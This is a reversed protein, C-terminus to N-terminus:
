VRELMSAPVKYLTGFLSNNNSERVQVTKRNVKTVTGVVTKGAGTTFKAKDGITFQRINQRALFTMQLNVADIIERMEEPSRVARIDNIINEVSM